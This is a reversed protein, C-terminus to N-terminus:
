PRGVSIDSVNRYTCITPTANSMFPPHVRIYSLCVKNVRVATEWSSRLCGPPSQFYLSVDCNIIIVTSAAIKQLELFSTWQRGGIVTQAVCVGLPTMGRASM